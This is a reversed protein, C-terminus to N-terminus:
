KAKYGFSALDDKSFSELSNRHVHVEPNLKTSDVQEQKGSQTNFVNLIM